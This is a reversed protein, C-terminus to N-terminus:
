QPTIVNSDQNRSGISTMMEYIWQFNLHNRSIYPNYIVTDLSTSINPFLGERILIAFVNNTSLEINTYSNSPTMLLRLSIFYCSSGWYLCPAGFSDFLSVFMNRRKKAFLNSENSMQRILRTTAPLIQINQTSVDLGVYSYNTLLSPMMEVGDVSGEGVSSMEFKTDNQPTNLSVHNREPDYGHRNECWEQRNPLKQPVDRCFVDENVRSVYQYGMMTAGDFFKFLSCENICKMSRKKIELDVSAQNNHWRSYSCEGCKFLIKYKWDASFGGHAETYDEMRGFGHEILNQMFDFEIKKITHHFGPSEYYFNEGLQTVLIGDPRLANSLSKIFDDTDYLITSFDTSSEPDSDTSFKSVFM